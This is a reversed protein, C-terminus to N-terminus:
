WSRTPFKGQRVFFIKVLSALLVFCSNESNENSPFLNHQKLYEKVYCFFAFLHIIDSM